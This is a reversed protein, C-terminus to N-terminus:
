QKNIFKFRKRLKFLYLSIMRTSALDYLVFTINCIGYVIYSFSIEETSIGFIFRSVAIVATLMANFIVLKLIWSIVKPLREIYSKIIPYIGMCVAFVLIGFKDPMLLLGLVSTVLWVLYPYFGGLEIVCFIIIFSAAMACSLDLVTVVSGLFLIVFCLASMVAALSLKKTKNMGM